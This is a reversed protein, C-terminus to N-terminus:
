SKGGWKINKQTFNFKKIVLMFKSWEEEQQAIDTKFVFLLMESTQPCM